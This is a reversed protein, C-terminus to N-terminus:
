LNMTKRGAVRRSSGPPSPQCSIAPTAASRESYGAAIASKTGNGFTDKTPDAYHAVFKRQRPKLTKSIKRADPKKPKGNKGSM